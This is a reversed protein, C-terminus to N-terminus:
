ETNHTKYFIKISNIYDDIQVNKLRYLIKIFLNDKFYDEIQNKITLLYKIRSATLTPNVRNKLCYGIHFGHHPRWIKVKDLDGFGINKELLYYLFHENPSTKLEEFPKLEVPHKLFHRITSNMKEYYEKRKVFHLGSMRKSNKRIVNSYPLNIASCHNLHTKLISHKEKVILFDIDGFYVNEFNEFQNEPILWRLLKPHHTKIKRHFNNVIEFNQSLNNRILDLAIKENPKLDNRCFVKVYYEPYSKLISYIYLPIFRTYNGFVFPSFCLQLSM